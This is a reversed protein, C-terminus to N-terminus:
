SELEKIHSNILELYALKHDLEVIIPKLKKLQKFYSNAQEKLEDYRKNDRILQINERAKSFVLKELEADSSELSDLLWSSIDYKQSATYLKKGSQPIDILYPDKVSLPELAPAPADYLSKYLTVRYLNRDYLEQNISGVKLPIENGAVTITDGENFELQWLLDKGDKKRTGVEQAYGTKLDAENAPRMKPAVGLRDKAQNGRIILDQSAELISVMPAYQEALHEEEINTILVNASSRMATTGERAYVVDDALKKLDTILEDLTIKARISNNIKEVAM